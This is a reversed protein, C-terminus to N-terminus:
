KASTKLAAQWAEWALQVHWIKYNGPWAFKIPDDPWRGVSQEFPPQSIWAEFEKRSEEPTM